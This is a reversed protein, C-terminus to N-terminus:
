PLSIVIQNVGQPQLYIVSPARDGPPTYATGERTWTVTASKASAAYANYADMQFSWEVGPAFFDSNLELSRVTSGVVTKTFVDTPASTRYYYLTYGQTNLGDHQWSVTAAFLPSAFLLIAIAILKKM